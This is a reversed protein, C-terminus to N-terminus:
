PKQPSTCLQFGWGGKCLSPRTKLIKSFFPPWIKEMFPLPQFSTIRQYWHIGWVIYYLYSSHACLLQNLYMNIHTHWGVSGQTHQTKKKHTHTHTYIYIYIYIYIQTHTHAHTHKDSILNSYSCFVVDHTLGWYVQCRKAYFVCWTGLARCTYMWSIMLYFLVDFTARDSMRGFFCSLLTLLPPLAQLRCPLPLYFQLFNSFPPYVIYLPPTPTRM